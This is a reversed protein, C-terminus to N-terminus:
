RGKKALSKKESAFSLMGDADSYYLPKIGFPDRAGYLSKEQKDWILISFMGRLDNFAEVQKDQFLVAIVETDSETEFTYGKEILQKRLEVYNYIEGNFVMWYRENEFHFPQHGSEIDIISLRRFGLSIHDDHYYGEEDPGRHKILENSAEFAKVFDENDSQGKNHLIGIFGCM